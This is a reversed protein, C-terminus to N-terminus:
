KPQGQPPQGQPPQGQPPQGRTPPQGQTPQEGSPPASPKVDGPPQAGRETPPAAAPDGPKAPKTGPQQQRLRMQARKGPAQYFMRKQRPQDQLQTAVPQAMPQSPQMFQGEQYKGTSDSSWFTTHKPGWSTSSQAQVTSAGAALALGLAGALLTSYMRM